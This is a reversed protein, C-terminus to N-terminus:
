RAAAADIDAAVDPHASRWKRSREHATQRTV